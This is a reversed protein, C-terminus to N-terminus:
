NLTANLLFKYQNYINPNSYIYNTLQAIKHYMEPNGLMLMVYKNNGSQKTGIFSGTGRMQLDYKAIEFGDTTKCMIESKKDEKNNPKLICYSQLSSRGVRGRIQHLSSLGFRDSSCILMVTSNPNNVGVEIITTSVLVHIQNKCYQGIIENVEEQSMDGTIMAVKIGITGFEKKYKNYITSVSEVEAMKESESDDILPCVIYAQHGAQIEKIMLQNIMNYDHMIKTIVPKRGNPKSKITFVKTNDGYISMALTRPIPTASMSIKHPLPVRESLKAMVEERYAYFLQYLENDTIGKFFKTKKEGKKILGLLDNKLIYIRDDAFSCQKRKELLEKLKIKLELLERKHKEEKSITDNKEIKIKFIKLEEEIDINNTDINRFFINAKELKRKKLEKNLEAVYPINEIIQSDSKRYFERQVVGFRQEEDFICFGLNKFVVDQGMIAHTGVVVQISGDKLGELVEKRDKASLDGILYGVKIGMKEFHNNIEKYHQEALVETPAILCSQFGNEACLALIFEAVVTKGSGVDGQILANVRETGKLFGYIQKIIKKQDEHLEFSLMDVLSHSTKCTSVVFDSEKNLNQESKLIFNWIFLDDFIFRKKADEIDQMNKPKHIKYFAAYEDILGFKKKIDDSIFDKSGAMNDLAENIANELYEDTMGKINKYVPIIRKFKNINVNFFLINMKLRNNNKVDIYPKGCFIYERGEQLIKNFVDIKYFWSIQIYGTGDAVSITLVSPVSPNDKKYYIRKDIVKGVIACTETLPTINGIKTPQRFDYYKTPIYKLLDEVCYINRTNLQKIKNSPLGLM